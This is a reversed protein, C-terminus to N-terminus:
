HCPRGGAPAELQGVALIACAVSETSWTKTSWRAFEHAMLRLSDDALTNARTGEVRVGSQAALPMHIRETAELARVVCANEQTRRGEAFHLFSLTSCSAMSELQANHYM